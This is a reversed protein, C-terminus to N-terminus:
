PGGVALRRASIRARLPNSELMIKIDLPPIGMDMPFKRFIKLRRIKSLRLLFIPHLRRSSLNILPRVGSAVAQDMDARASRSYVHTHTHIYTYTYIYIYICM